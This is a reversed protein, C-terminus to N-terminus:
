RFHSRGATPTCACGLRGSGQAHQASRWRAPPASAPATHSHLDGETGRRPSEGWLLIDQLLCSKRIASVVASHYSPEPPFTGGLCAFWLQIDPSCHLADTPRHVEPCVCKSHAQPLVLKIPYVEWSVLDSLALLSSSLLPAQKGCPDAQQASAHLHMGQLHTLTTTKPMSSFHLLPVTSM